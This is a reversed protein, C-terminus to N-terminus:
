LHAFIEALGVSRTPEGLMNRFTILIFYLLSTQINAKLSVCSSTDELNSVMSKCSIYIHYKVVNCVCFNAICARFEGCQWTKCGTSLGPLRKMGSRKILKGDIYFGVTITVIKVTNYSNCSNEGDPM